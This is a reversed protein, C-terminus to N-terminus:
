SCDDAGLVGNVDANASIMNTFMASVLMVFALVRSITRKTSGNKM